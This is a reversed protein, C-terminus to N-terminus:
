EFTKICHVSRIKKIIVYQETKQFVVKFFNYKGQNAKNEKM